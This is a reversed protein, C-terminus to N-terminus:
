GVVGSNDVVLIEKHPYAQVDGDLARLRFEHPTYPNGQTLRVKTSVDLHEPRIRGTALPRVKTPETVAQWPIGLRQVQLRVDMQLFTSLKGPDPELRRVMWEGNMLAFANWEAIQHVDEAVSKM